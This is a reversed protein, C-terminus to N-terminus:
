AWHLSIKLATPYSCRVAYRSCSGDLNSKPRIDPLSGPSCCVRQGAALTSCLKADPNYQTFQQTTIQCKTVISACGDGSSVTQTRCTGDLNARPSHDPPIGSGCCVFQGIQLASCLNSSPNFKLFDQDSIGCKQALSVCGDGDVVTQTPCDNRVFLRSPRYEFAFAAGALLWFQVCLWLGRSGSLAFM